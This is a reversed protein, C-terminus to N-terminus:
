ASAFNADPVAKHEAVPDVAIDVVDGFGSKVKEQVVAAATVM